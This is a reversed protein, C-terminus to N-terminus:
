IFKGRVDEEDVWWLMEDTQQANAQIVIQSYQSFTQVVCCVTQLERIKKMDIGGSLHTKITHQNNNNLV